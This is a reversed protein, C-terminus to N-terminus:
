PKLKALVQTTTTAQFTEYPECRVVEFASALYEWVQENFHPIGAWYSNAAAVVKPDDVSSGESILMSIESSWNLDHRSVADIPRVELCWETAGGALDIDDPDGVMFVADKHALCDAPRYRELIAYFDTGNWSTEYATGRGRLVSGVVFDRSSGHYYFAHTSYVDIM